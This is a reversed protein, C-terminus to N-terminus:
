DYSVLRYSIVKKMNYMGTGRVKTRPGLNHEIGTVGYRTGLRDVDMRCMVYKPELPGNGDVDILHVGNMIDGAQFYEDCSRKYKASISIM